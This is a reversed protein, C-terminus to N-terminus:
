MWFSQIKKCAQERRIREKRQAVDDERVLVRARLRPRVRFRTWCGRWSRQITTAASWKMGYRVMRQAELFHRVKRQIRIM